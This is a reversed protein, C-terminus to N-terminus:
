AEGFCPQNVSSVFRDDTGSTNDQLDRVIWHRLGPREGPYADRQAQRVNWGQDLVGAAFGLGALHECLVRIAGEQGGAPAVLVVAPKVATDLLLKGHQIQGHAIARVGDIDFDFGGLRRLVTQALEAAAGVNDDRIM